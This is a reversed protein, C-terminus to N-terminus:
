PRLLTTGSRHCCEHSNDANPLLASLLLAQLLRLTRRDPDAHPNYEAIELAALKSEGRVSALALALEAGTLGNEVPSGVGPAESPDIADVDISIGYAATGERARSLAEKWIETLGRRRVEDMFYVRVGLRRLLEAEEFEYSRVGILSVHRPALKQGLGGVSSLAPAGFGLLCALPMGHLAGSVSTEPVHSDMHADVWVMGLPGERKFVSHVGSWTGIACSHDGGLVVPFDGVGIVAAVEGALRRCFRATTRYLDTTSSPYITGRWLTPGAMPALAELFDSRRLAEPGDACGPNRAGLGCAAGVLQIRRVM